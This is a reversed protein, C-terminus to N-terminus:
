DHCAGSQEKGPAFSIRGADVLAAKWRALDGAAWKEAYSWMMCEQLCARAEDREIRMADAMGRAFDREAEAKEARERMAALEIALDGNAQRMVEVDKPLCPLGAALKDAYAMLEALEARLQNREAIKLPETRVYEALERELRGAEKAYKIASANAESLFRGLECIECQRALTGHVCDRPQTPMTKNETMHMETHTEMWEVAAIQDAADGNALGDRADAANM